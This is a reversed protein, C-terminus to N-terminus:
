VVAMTPLTLHTYSVPNIDITTEVNNGAVPEDGTRYEQSIIAGTKDVQDIRLGDLGHLYSEFASEFGSQGVQADMYYEDSDKVKEWQEATMAGMTGLIHAAYSTYYERVTSAEVMLGPINLELLASLDEDSVDEMFTYNPLNAVGRLDFEYRM